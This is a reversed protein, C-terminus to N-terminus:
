KNKMVKAPTGFAIVRDPIDRTVVSGMGITSNEGVSTAVNVVCNGSVLCDAGVSSSGLLMTEGVIFANKGIQVNHSVYCAGSIKAGSGIRTEDIAGRNVVTNAGIQANDEIVVSGFQPMTVASGDAERDTTLSDSGIVANERIVVNNGVSIRGLLKAGAGIYVNDGLVVEGGIYAGPMVTANAGIRAGKAIYAGDVVDFAEKRPLNDIHNDRFFRCYCLKPNDCPVVAHLRGLEEPVPESDPWFILCEKVGSFAAAQEIREKMIFMVAHDQPRNLSAPRVVCFDKGAVYKSANVNFFTSM